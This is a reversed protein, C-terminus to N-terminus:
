AAAKAANQRMPMVVALPTDDGPLTVLVADTPGAAYADGFSSIAAYQAGVHVEFASEGIGPISEYVVATIENLTHHWIVRDTRKLKQGRTTPIIRAMDPANGPVKTGFEYRGSQYADFARAAKDLTKDPLCRVSARVLCWRGNSMYTDDIYLRDKKDIKFTLRM